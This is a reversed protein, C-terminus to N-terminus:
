TAHTNHIYVILLASQQRSARKRNSLTEYSLRVNYLMHEDFDCNNLVLTGCEGM